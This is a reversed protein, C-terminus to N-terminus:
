ESWEARPFYRLWTTFMSRNKHYSNAKLVASQEQLLSAIAFHLRNTVIQRYSGALAIYEDASKVEFVPDRGADTTREMDCRLFTGRQHTPRSPPLELALALDPALRIDPHTKHLLEWTTEERVFVTEFASLDEGMDSASQPLVIKPGRLKSLRARRRPSGLGERTGLNGGGSEAIISVDTPWNGALTEKRTIVRCRIGNRALLEVTGRQILHDGFNGFENVALGVSHGRLRDLVANFADDPLRM